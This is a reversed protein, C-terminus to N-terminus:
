PRFFSAEFPVGFRRVLDDLTMDDLFLRDDNLTAPPVYVRDGLDRGELERAIDGGSLLGAVTVSRGFFRNECGVIRVVTEERTRALTADIAERLIPEFLEGTVLTAIQEGRKQMSGFLRRTARLRELFERTMGIGNELQPFGDYEDAPPCEIGLLRYFEDALYVFGCGTKKRLSRQYRVVQRVVQEAIAPTIPSLRVLGDRHDTMGLPVIALSMVGPWRAALDQITKELDKGDNYGPCLVIQTHLEISHDVLYDIL